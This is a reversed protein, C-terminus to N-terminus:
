GMFFLAVGGVAIVSGLVERLTVKEKFLWISFPIILIPNVSTITQVIGPNTQSVAILSFTIGLFPGFFAGLSIIGMAKYNNVSAFISKWRKIVTILILFGALGAIVRIQTAAFANAGEPMGEKSMVIGSAQGLAGLLAFLIGKASYKIGTKVGNSNGKKFIVLVIGSLTLSMGAIGRLSIIDDLFLWSFLAAMPPSLSMVLLAIRPGTITFAKFLFLDGLFIGTIGSLALWLLQHNSITSDYLIGDRITIFLTLLILGVILRWFNVSLSGVSKGASTFALATVTWFIATLLAAFEGPHNSIM